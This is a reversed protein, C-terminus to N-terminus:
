LRDSFVRLQRLMAREFNLCHCLFGSAREPELHVFDMTKCRLLVTGGGGGEIWCPHKESVLKLVNFYISKSLTSANVEVTFCPSFAIVKSSLIALLHMIHCLVLEVMFSQIGGPSARRM